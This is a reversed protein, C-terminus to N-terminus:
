RQYDGSTHLLYRPAMKGRQKYACRAALSSSRRNEREWLYYQPFHPDLQEAPLPFYKERERHAKAILINYPLPDILRKGRQNVEEVGSDNSSEFAPGKCHTLHIRKKQKTKQKSM